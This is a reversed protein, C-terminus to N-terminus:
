RQFYRFVNRCIKFSAPNRTYFIENHFDIYGGIQIKSFEFFNSPYHKFYFHSIKSYVYVTTKPISLLGYFTTCVKGSEGM